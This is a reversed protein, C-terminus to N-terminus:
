CSKGPPLTSLFGRQCLSRPNSGQNPFIGRAVPWLAVLAHGCGSLGCETALGRHRSVGCLSTPMVASLPWGQELFCLFGVRLSSGACDSTFLCVFSGILLCKNLFYFVASPLDWSWGAKLVQPFSPTLVSPRHGAGQSASSDGEGEDEHSGRTLPQMPGWPRYAALSRQGHPKGPM